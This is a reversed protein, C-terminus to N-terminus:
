APDNSFKLVHDETLKFIISMPNAGSHSRYRVKGYYTFPAAKGANLKTERIFLHITTGLKQEEILQRGRKNTPSTSNQSQWHFTHDDVWHDLYRHDEAKGQKNLTVLLIHTKGEDLVVHGSNWNGPNFTEGFFPPIAERMFSRGIALQLPDIVIKLRAVMRMEPTVALDDYAPNNAQLIYAGDINRHLVRLLYQSEDGAENEREVAMVTDTEPFAETPSVRELLLYDGNRIPSKGGDMSNGSARAIFHQESRLQGFQPGLSIYEEADTFGTRFHGCAIKLNPFFPLETKNAILQPFQLIQARNDRPQQRLEYAALRYDVLEQVLTSLRARESQAVTFLPAFCGDVIQFFSNAETSRNGGIWANVPNDFWYRQWAASTGDELPQIQTSIDALLPRRRQLVQWSREALLSLPIAKHFGGLELMAELLVMKFSKNINTTEIERLFERHSVVLQADEAELDGQAMVFGFWSGYQQRMRQVSIGARFFESFSPRRSLGEKLAEYENQIGDSDLSKLFEILQLDYNAFCGEPLDLHRQEVKRAFEALQHYNTGAGFLAQPKHLFSQHNGVFDLIVLKNKGDTKRLGRGIQQLFLIKSDTPRLLMVTDIEPLDVGENFLDVSFVVMLRKDRLRELADARSLSSGAYVAAAAIGARSFQEAM